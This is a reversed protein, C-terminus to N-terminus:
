DSVITVKVVLVHFYYKLNKTDAKLLAMNSITCAWFNFNFSTDIRHSVRFSEDM